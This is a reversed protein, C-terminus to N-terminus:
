NLIVWKTKQELPSVFTHACFITMICQAYEIVSNQFLSCTKEVFISLFFLFAM